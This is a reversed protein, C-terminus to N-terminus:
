ESKHQSVPYADALSNVIPTGTLCWRYTARIDAIAQSTRTTKNRINQAEDLVVRYWQVQFLKGTTSKIRANDEDSEIFDDNKRKKRKGGMLAQPYELALTSFTTLVVDYSQLIKKTKAKRPNSTHYIHVSILGENTKSEIEKKWQELLAVPAVILTSKNQSNEDPPNMMMLAILQVTKGLGM